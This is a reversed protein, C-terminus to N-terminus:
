IISIHYMPWYMPILQTIIVAISPITYFYCHKQNQPNKRSLIPGTEKTYISCSILLPVSTRFTTCTWAQHKHYYNNFITDLPMKHLSEPGDSPSRPTQRHHLVTINPRDTNSHLFPPLIIIRVLWHLYYLSMNTETTREAGNRHGYNDGSRVSPKCYLLEFRTQSCYGLDKLSPM